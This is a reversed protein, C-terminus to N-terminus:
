AGGDLDQMQGVMDRGLVHTLGLPLRCASSARQGGPDSFAGLAGVGRWLAQHAVRTRSPRTGSGAGGGCQTRVSVM